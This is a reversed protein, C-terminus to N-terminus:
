VTVAAANTGSTDVNCAWNSRLAVWDKFLDGTVTLGGTSQCAAIAARMDKRIATLPADAKNDGQDNRETREIGHPCEAWADAMAVSVRGGAFSKPMAISGIGGLSAAVTATSGRESGSVARASEGSCALALVATSAIACRLNSYKNM